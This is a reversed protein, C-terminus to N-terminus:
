WLAASGLSFWGNCTTGDGRYGTNCGCTFSGFTNTCSANPDCTSEAVCENVDTPPLTCWKNSMGSLSHQHRNHCCVKVELGPWCKGSSNVVRVQKFRCVTYAINCGGNCTMGDGAYGTKCACVVSGLTNTCTANPHCPSQVLCEDIDTPLLHCPLFSWWLSSTTFGAIKEWWRDYEWTPWMVTRSSSSRTRTAYVDASPRDWKTSPWWLHNGNATLPATFQGIIIM